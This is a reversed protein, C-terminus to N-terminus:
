ILRAAEPTGILRAFNDFGTRAVAARLADRAENAPRPPSEVMGPQYADKARRDAEVRAEMQRRGPYEDDNFYDGM